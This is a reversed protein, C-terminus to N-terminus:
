RTLASSKADAKRKEIRAALTERREEYAKIAAASGEVVKKHYEAAAEEGRLFERPRSQWELWVREGALRKDIASLEALDDALTVKSLDDNSYDYAIAEPTPSSSFTIPQQMPQARDKAFAVPASAILAALITALATKM